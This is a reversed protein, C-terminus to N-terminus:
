FAEPISTREPAPSAAGSGEGTDCSSSYFQDVKGQERFCLEFPIKVLLKVINYTLCDKTIRGLSSVIKYFM